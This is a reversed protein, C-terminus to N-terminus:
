LHLVKDRHGHFKTPIRKEDWRNRNFLWIMQSNYVGNYTGGTGARHRPQLEELRDKWKFADIITRKYLRILDDGIMKGKVYRRKPDRHGSSPEWERDNDPTYDLPSSLEVEAKGYLLAFSFNEPESFQQSGARELMKRTNQDPVFMEMMAGVENNYKVIRSTGLVLSTDGPSRVILYINGHQPLNLRTSMYPPEPQDREREALYVAYDLKLVFGEAEAFARILAAHTEQNEKIATFSDVFGQLRESGSSLRDELTIMGGSQAMTALESNDFIAM